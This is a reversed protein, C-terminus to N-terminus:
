RPRPSYKRKLQQLDKKSMEFLNRIEMACTLAEEFSNERAMVEINNSLETISEMGLSMSSGKIKHAHFLADQANKSKVAEILKLITKPTESLFIDILDAFFSLDEETQLDHLFPIKTEDVVKTDLKHRQLQEVLNGKRAIIKTGWKALMDPLEDIRMPKPIYDDMGADLCEERDGQMANATMAIIIPRKDEGYLEILKRTAELGDMEPMYVDMFIIDYPIVKMADLVELGNAAVDVRYGLKEFIRIAVKQNIANDEALLIRLPYREAIEASIAYHKHGRTINAPMDSFVSILSEYLQSQKIPKNLFKKINLEQLLSNDEKRGLSTLVIIPFQSITPIARIKRALSVGDIEPMQFDLIAIDYAAGNVLDEIADSPKEFENSLMGWSEVQLKLIRRNTANDDVVLVTKGRLDPIISSLTHKKIARSEDAVITFYFTSGKGEESELWMRGNMLEALKKSIVLGLGTGGYLRTTSSDVQTFPQFLKAVKSEPIGIGTDKVAFQIEYKGKSLKTSSASVFVEGTDTFKIANNLLNTLIQRLRTVDGLIAVPTPEKIQYLLDIGKEAAKSGLLDLTDEICERLVFPQVEMEMRDSEIKSFDLIDNIIVLLQEGCIRITEVFERQEATLITDLLLGTMGIVGNM